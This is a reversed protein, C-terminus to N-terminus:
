CWEKGMWAPVFGIGVDQMQCLRAASLQAAGLTIDDFVSPYVIHRSCIKFM